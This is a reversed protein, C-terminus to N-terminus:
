DLSIGSTTYIILGLKFKKNVIANEWPLWTESHFQLILNWSGSAYINFLKEFM